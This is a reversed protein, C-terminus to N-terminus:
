AMSREFAAFLTQEDLVGVAQERWQIVSRAHTSTSKAVTAPPDQLQAATVRHLGHVDDVACVVRRQGRELVLLRERGAPADAVTDVGIVHAMSLCVLLEGRISVIGLMAARRRHPIAHIPRREAVETVVDAPLALWEGRARFLLLNRQEASQQPPPMAAYSAWEGLYGEPPERDLLRVAAGAYVPCNRCHVHRVLEPCSRDGTVGIQTWCDSM